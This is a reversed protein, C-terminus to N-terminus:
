GLFTSGGRAAAHARTLANNISVFLAIWGVIEVCDRYLKM